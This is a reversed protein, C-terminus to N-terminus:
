SLLRNTLGPEVNPEFIATPIRHAAALIMMPGSAYGGVGFAVSFKHRWLIRESDFLGVPLMAANRYFKAGGIGKLGAVRILELLFGAQPVLRSEIGRETGVFVVRRERAGSGGRRM